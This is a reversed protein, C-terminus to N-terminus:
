ATRRRAPARAASGSVSGPSFTKRALTLDQAAAANWRAVNRTAKLAEEARWEPRAILNRIADAADEPRETDIFTGSAGLVERFVPKDPAVVPLGAFQAEILPLGLGEDYSTCLYIDAEELVAKVGSAPLYGHVVVGPHNAIAAGADGWGARGVIHLEAAVDAGARLADLVAVASAYNKRPEVTGLSVLKLPSPKAPKASRTPADLGFHNAVTPRYLAIDADPRAYAKLEAGTKESNVFFHKLRRVALAFQPAMYIRAKTSLDSPRSLLFTDHVYLMVRDPILAFFPSPPFGPFVFRARPHILALLPLLLQQKLIMAAVGAARIPHFEAGDFATKEFQEIAVREIGTVHRGVHTLDLFVRTPPPTRDTM